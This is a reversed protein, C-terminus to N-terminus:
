SLPCFTPDPENTIADLLEIPGAPQNAGEAERGGLVEGTVFDDIGLHNPDTGHGGAPVTHSAQAGQNGVAELRRRCVPAHGLQRRQRYRTAHVTM